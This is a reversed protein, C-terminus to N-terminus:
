EGVSIGILNLDVETMLGAVVGAQVGGWSVDEAIVRSRSRVSPTAAM